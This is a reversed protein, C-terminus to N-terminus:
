FVHDISAWGNPYDNGCAALLLGACAAVALTLFRKARSYSKQL